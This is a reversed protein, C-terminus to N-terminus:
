LLRSDTAPTSIPKADFNVNKLRNRRNNSSRHLLDLVTPTRPKKRLGFERRSMFYLCTLATVCTKFLNNSTCVVQCVGEGCVGEFCVGGGWWVCVRVVCM